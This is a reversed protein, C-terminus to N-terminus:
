WTVSCTPLCGTSRTRCWPAYAHQRVISLDPHGPKLPQRRKELSMSRVDQDSFAREVLPQGIRGHLKEVEAKGARSIERAAAMGEMAQRSWEGAMTQHVGHKTARRMPTLEGHLADLAVSAELEASIGYRSTCHASVRAVSQVAADAILPLLTRPNGGSGGSRLEYYFCLDIPCHALFKPIAVVEM